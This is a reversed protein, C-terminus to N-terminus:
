PVLTKIPATLNALGTREFRFVFESTNFRVPEYFEVRSVEAVTRNAPWTTDLTLREVTTSVEISSQISRVLSTGDTFTIKFVKKPERSQAYKTYSIHKIDMTSSLNSLNAVVTLDETFTPLRFSVQPGRLSLLLKKLKMLDARSRISFGKMSNRQSKAWQPLYEVVGTGNDIIRVRTTSLTEMQDSMINPDDLLVQTSYTSWGSTSGAFMGTENDTVRFQMSYRDLNVLSRANSVDGVIYGLRLPVVRTNASYSGTTPTSSFGLSNTTVSSLQVVDFATPSSWLLAFGGVRFDVDTTASVSASTAGVSVLATTRIDEHWVPFGLLRPMADMLLMQMRQREDTDLVFRVSFSQVPSGTLSLVQETGNDSAIIDSIFEWTEEFDSEYIAPIISIRTGTLRLSAVDGTSFDWEITDDFTPPGDKSVVLNLRTKNKNAGSAHTSAPDLFSTFAAFTAPPTPLDPLTVSSGVNNVLATFTIDQRWANFVEYDDTKQSLILGFNYTSRELIHVKNFWDFGSSTEEAVVAAYGTYSPTITHTVGGSARPGAIPAGLSLLSAYEGTRPEVFRPATMAYTSEVYYNDIVEGAYDAM